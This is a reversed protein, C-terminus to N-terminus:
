FLDGQDPKATGKSAPKRKARPRAGGGEIRAPTRGDALEIEVPAGPSLDGSNRALGGGEVHIVAYGRALSGKYSVSELLRSAAAFRERRRRELVAHARGLRDSVLRLREGSERTDPPQASLRRNLRALAAAQDGTERKLSARARKGYTELASLRDRILTQLARPRLRGAFRHFHESAAALRTRLAPALAIAAGDLKQRQPGLLGDPSPLARAASRLETRASEARRAAAAGLRAGLSGIATMLESRVPVAREAAGTPTPARHDAAYDILTTDTEHGIASILPIASAAASRAVVEENFAWLDEISGGGRAVILLDPRAPHREPLANFGAIASAIQSAAKDGQVLVPWLIVHRPFRDALRHLIDRIVAGTPSTIVGIREPLFPLAQKREAAFLGEAALKKKREELLAMLAGAGAPELHDIILQYKSQGAFSSIRGEAIVEMGEEPAFPFRAAQGKWAVSALVAREDKLDLYVHGSRATVVRGLEGRVRVRDFAGELTKKIAGSLDSVSLEPLNSLSEGSMGALSFRRRWRRFVRPKADRM